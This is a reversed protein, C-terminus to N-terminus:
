RIVVSKPEWYGRYLFLFLREECDHARIGVQGQLLNARVPSDNPLRKSFFPSALTIAAPALSLLRVNGKGFAGAAGSGIGFLDLITQSTSRAKARDLLPVAILASIPSIGASGAAAYIQGAPTVVTEGGLECAQVSAVGVSSLLKGTVTRISESGQQAFLLRVGTTGPAAVAIPRFVSAQGLAPVILILSAILTRLM